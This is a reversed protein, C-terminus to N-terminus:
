GESSNMIITPNNWSFLVSWSQHRKPFFFFYFSETEPNHKKGMIAICILIFNMRSIIYFCTYRLVESSYFPLIM